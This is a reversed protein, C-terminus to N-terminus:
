RRGRTSKAAPCRWGHFAGGTRVGVWPFGAEAEVTTLLQRVNAGGALFGQRGRRLEAHVAPRPLFVVRGELLPCRIFVVRFLVDQGHQEAVEDLGGAERTLQFWLLHPLYDSLSM